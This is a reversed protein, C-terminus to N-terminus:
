LCGFLGLSTTLLVIKESKKRYLHSPTVWYIRSRGKPLVISSQQPKQTTAYFCKKTMNPVATWNISSQLLFFLVCSVKCTTLLTSKLMLLHLTGLCLHPWLSACVCSLSCLVCCCLSLSLPEFLPLHKAVHLSCLHCSRSLPLPLYLSVCVYM